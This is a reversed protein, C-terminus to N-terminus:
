RQGRRRGRKRTKKEAKQWPAHPDDATLRDLYQRIQEVSLGTLREEAPLTQLLERREEPSLDAFHEKAYQRQSDEM